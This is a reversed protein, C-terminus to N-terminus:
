NTPVRRFQLENGVPNPHEPSREWLDTIKVTLIDQALTFEFSKLIYSANGQDSDAILPVWIIV